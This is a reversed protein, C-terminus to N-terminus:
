DPFYYINEYGGTLVDIAFQLDNVANSFYAISGLLGAALAVIAIVNLAIWFKKHM